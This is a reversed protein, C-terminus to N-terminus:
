PLPDISIREGDLRLHERFYVAMLTGKPDYDEGFIVYDKFDTGLKENVWSLLEGTREGELLTRLPWLVAQKNQEGCNRRFGDMIERKLHPALKTFKDVVFNLETREGVPLSQWNFSTESKRNAM